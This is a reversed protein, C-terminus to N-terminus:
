LLCCFLSCKYLWWFLVEFSIWVIRKIWTNVCFLSSLSRRWMSLMEL